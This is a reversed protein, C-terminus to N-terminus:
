QINEKDCEIKKFFNELDYKFRIKKKTSTIEIGNEIAWKIPISKRDAEKIYKKVTQVDIAFTSELDRYNFIFYAKVLEHNIESMEKLQTDRICNFPISAGKHSKLELIFLYKKGMVECDSINHAQFRVNENKTGGFNGTGDKFRYFWYGEPISKKIDEEFLKGENKAM